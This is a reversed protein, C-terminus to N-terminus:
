DAYCLFSPNLSYPFSVLLLRMIPDNMPSVHNVANEIELYQRTEKQQGVWDSVRWCCATFTDGSNHPGSRINIKVLHKYPFSESGSIQKLFKVNKEVINKDVSIEATATSDMGEGIGLKYVRVCSTSPGANFTVTRSPSLATIGQM